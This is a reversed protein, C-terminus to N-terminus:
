CANEEEREAWESESATRRAACVVSNTHPLLLAATAAVARLRLVDCERTQMTASNSDGGDHTQTRITTTRVKRSRARAAEQLEGQTQTGSFCLSVSLFHGSVLKEITRACQRNATTTAYLERGGEAKVRVHPLANSETQKAGGHTPTPQQHM